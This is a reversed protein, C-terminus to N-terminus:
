PRKKTTRKNSMIEKTTMSKTEEFVLAITATSDNDLINCMQEIGFCNLSVATGLQERVVIDDNLV